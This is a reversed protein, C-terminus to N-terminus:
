DPIRVLTKGFNEGRMLRIFQAAANDLGTVVDEKYKLRGAAYWATAAKSFEPRVDEFDYVVFGFITGRMKCVNGLNPGPPPAGLNYQTILGSLIIRSNLAIHKTIVTSQIDGGTNDFFIDVGNPALRSLEASISETKRNICADFGAVDRVWACKETSGAIGIAKAGKIKAIQGVMSGVPGSAASVLVVDGSKIQGPCTLAAYATLGPMGLIGLGTSLPADGIDPRYTDDGNSLAFHQMGTELCLLDGERHDPHRSKIVRAIARGRMVDGSGPANYFHRGSMVARVYPDLSLFLNQVLFQGDQPEPIPASSLVFDDPTPIGQPVRTLRLQTNTQSNSSM